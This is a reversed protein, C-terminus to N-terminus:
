GNLLVESIKKTTLNEKLYSFLYDNIKWYQPHLEYRRAYKNTEKIIDKPFSTMTLPPCEDIDPFYPICRNALIEYHRMCQWQGKKWTMGYYSSSYDKYYDEENHYIYTDLKGPIIDAMIKTKNPRDTKLLQSEPIGFSIPNGAGYNVLHSKWIIGYPSLGFAHAFNYSNDSGDIFHIQSKSYHKKVLDIYDLCEREPFGEHIYVSGYIVLDYFKSCIKDKIEEQSDVKPEHNLKGFLTFGNGYLKGNRVPDYTSHMYRPFHSEYVEMGSDILGHYITDSQYDPYKFNYVYLIKM